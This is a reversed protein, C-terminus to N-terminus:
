TADLNGSSELTSMFLGVLEKYWISFLCMDTLGYGTGSDRCSLM